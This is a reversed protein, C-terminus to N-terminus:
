IAKPSFTRGNGSHACDGETVFRFGGSDYRPMFTDVQNCCMTVRDWICETRGKEVLIRLRVIALMKRRQAENFHLVTLWSVIAYYSGKQLHPGIQMYDAGIYSVDKLLPSSAVCRETLEKAAQSLDQQLEIAL